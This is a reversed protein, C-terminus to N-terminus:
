LGLADRYMKMMEDEEDIEDPDKKRLAICKKIYKPDYGASKAEAYVEKVGENISDVENLLREIREVISLLQANDM